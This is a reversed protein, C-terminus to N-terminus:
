GVTGVRLTLPWRVVRPEDAHTWTRRLEKELADVPDHGHADVYRATASWTRAYGALEALTWRQELTFTPPRLERFPFPLTRYGADVHRREPPWHPGVTEASFRYMADQAAPDDLVMGGYTWEALVGDSVLVRRAEAHFADVDFWHLAQAVTVLDVSADDLGSADARAVRYEVRPHPRAHEVQAASADTAIVRAFHEATGLAAQGSGTACDWAMRRAPAVSALYAFLAPPYDPRYAAYGAARRSFHDQFM